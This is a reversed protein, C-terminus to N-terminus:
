FPMPGTVFAAKSFFLAIRSLTSDYGAGIWVAGVVSIWLIFFILFIRFVHAL